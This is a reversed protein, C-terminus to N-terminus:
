RHWLASLLADTLPAEWRDRWAAPTVATLVVSTRSDGFVLVWRALEVDRAAQTAYYLRAPWGDVTVREQSHLRMGQKAFGEASFDRMTAYVSGVVENAFIATLEDDSEFARLDPDLHFGAPIAMSVRTGPFLDHGDPVPAPPRPSVCAALALLALAALRAAIQARRARV